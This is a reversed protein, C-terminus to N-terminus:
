FLKAIRRFDEGEPVPCDKIWEMEKVKWLSLDIDKPLLAKMDAFLNLRLSCNFNFNDSTNGRKKLELMKANINIFKDIDVKKHPTLCIGDFNDSCIILTVDDFYSTYLYFKSELLGMTQQINKISDVLDFTKYGFEALLPEGGTISIEDYDLRDVVPIKEIDFQNNCCM